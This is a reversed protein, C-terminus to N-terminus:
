DVAVVVGGRGLETGFVGGDNDLETSSGRDGGLCDVRGITDTEGGGEKPRPRDLVTPSVSVLVDSESTGLVLVSVVVLWSLLLRDITGANDGVLVVLEDAAESTRAVGM